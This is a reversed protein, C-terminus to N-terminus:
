TIKLALELIKLSYKDAIVWAQLDEEPIELGTSLKEMVKKSLPEKGIIVRNLGSQSHKILKSLTTRSMDKEKLIKDINQTLVLIKKDERNKFAEIAKQIVEPQYKDAVVWSEFEQKSVELIPLIKELVTKPFPTKLNILNSLAGHSYDILKALKKLSLNKQEIINKINKTTISM